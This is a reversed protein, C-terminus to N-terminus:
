ALSSGKLSNRPFCPRPAENFICGQTDNGEGDDAETRCRPATETKRERKDAMCYMAARVSIPLGRCISIKLYM